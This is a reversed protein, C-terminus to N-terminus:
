KFNNMWEIINKPYIGVRLGETWNKKIRYTEEINICKVEIEAGSAFAFEITDVISEGSPDVGWDDTIESKDVNPFMKSLIEAVEDRKVICGDFKEIFSIFGDIYLITFLENKNTIYENTSNNKVLFTIWDYTGLGKNLDIQAYKYPEKLNLYYDKTREINKLIEDETMYDLLSDGISMGEIEFDSLNEAFVSPSSLFFLSFLLVLLKKM